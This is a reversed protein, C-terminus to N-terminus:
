RFLIVINVIDQRILTQGDGAQTQVVFRHHFRVRVSTKQDGACKDTEGNDLHGGNKTLMQGRYYDMALVLDLILCKVIQAAWTRPVGILLRTSIRYANIPVAINRAEPASM